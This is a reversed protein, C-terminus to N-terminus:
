RKKQKGSFAQKHMEKRNSMATGLAQTKCAWLHDFINQISYRIDMYM